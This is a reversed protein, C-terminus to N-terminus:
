GLIRAGQPMLQDHFSRDPLQNPLVGPLLWECHRGIITGAAAISSSGLTTGKGVEVNAGLQVGAKLTVCAGLKVYSDILVHRELWCGFGISSDNAVNCGPGIYINGSLKLNKDVIAAPSVLNILRYGALRIDSILKHRSYNVAREDLAVFVETEEPKHASFLIAPDFNYRNASSLDLRIFNLGIENATHCAQELASEAGVLLTNM